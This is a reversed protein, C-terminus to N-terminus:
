FEFRIERGKALVFRKDENMNIAATKDNLLVETVSDPVMFEVEWDGNKQLLTFQQRGNKRKFFVSIINDGVPVRELQAEPWSSPMGPQLQIRQKHAQPQLGFFQTVIPTALAYVNWAQVIMGFDPSVEYMSGPLVFSFSRVMRQLYELAEDPRGYNNEAIAQVGTPLTMVAGTYSFIKKGAAFSVVDSGASADRDIGTVFVGFPNVFRSGTELAKLAKEPEAIGMEMPTNVVWNHHVVFGREQKRPYNEIEALTSKLERVAWPKQLTDARIIADNVLERAKRAESIFDAYSNFEPVWFAENITQRVQDATEQWQRATKSKELERAMRAGDEFGQQTYVAVDIMETNLGRIEMMGHGDPILNNNRDNKSVLWELGNEIFPFYKRLLNKDGTWKYTTWVMSAFHPTENLNGPNYVAGNTSVEHIVRGTKGNTEESVKKLLELTSFVLDPQGTALVGQLSYTNDCGFWWPYDPIGASLGRGVRPVERILWDTNYKVWEFALQLNSDPLNLQATERIQRYREEKELLLKEANNLTKKLSSQAEKPNKSSGAIAFTATKAGWPPLEVEVILAGNKGKGAHEFQCLTSEREYTTIKEKAGWVTFWNNLRDKGVLCQDTQDWYLIDEQDNMGSREGLWVPRLDTMGNFALRITRNSDTQNYLTYEIVISEMGDPVFQFRDVKLRLPTQAYRHLNAFPYNIFTDAKELCYQRDGEALQLSFGDMLKIPHDWIGGMEGNIHWGLDPFSGDQHGVMYLRDGATVYPSALYAAKGLIFPAAPIKSPLNEVPLSKNLPSERQCTFISSLLVLFFIPSVWKKLSHEKSM